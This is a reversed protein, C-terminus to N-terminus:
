ALGIIRVPEAWKGNTHGISCRAGDQYYRINLWFDGQWDDIGIHKADLKLRVQNYENKSVVAEFTHGNYSCKVKDGAQYKM